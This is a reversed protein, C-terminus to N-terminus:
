AIQRSSRLPKLVWYLIALQAVGTLAITVVPNPAPPVGSIFLWSLGFAILGKASSVRDLEFTMLWLIPAAGYIPVIPSRLSALVLLALWAQVLGARSLRLRAAFWTAALLLVTYLVSAARLMGRGGEIGLLELKWVTGPISLNTAISLTKTVFSFAEGSVLRPLMYTTFATAPETGTVAVALLVLAASFAATWTVDAWRRQLLLYLVLLGPFMKSTIGWALLAGGLAPRKVEFAVMAAMATWITILHAQGFQLNFMTPMSVLLLPLMWLAWAGAGGGVWRAVFVAFAVFALLQIAFWVMRIDTYDNSVSLWARPLLLFAPAYLYADRFYPQLGEISTHVDSAETLGFVPYHEPLYVNQDGQRTLDAAHVYSAMCM